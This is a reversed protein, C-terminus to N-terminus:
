AMIPEWPLYIEVVGGNWGDGYDDIMGFTWTGEPISVYTDYTTYNNAYFGVPVDYVINGFTDQINWAMESAWNGTVM